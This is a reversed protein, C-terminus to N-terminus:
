VVCNVELFPPKFTTSSLAEAAADSEAEEFTEAAALSAAEAAAEEVAEAVTYLAATVLRCTGLSLSGTEDLSRRSFSSM